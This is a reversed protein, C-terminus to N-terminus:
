KIKTLGICNEHSILNGTDEIEINSSAFDQFDPYDIESNTYKQPKVLQQHDAHKGVEMLYFVLLVIIPEELYIESTTRHYHRQSKVPVWLFFKPSIICFVYNTCAPALM